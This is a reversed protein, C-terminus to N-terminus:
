LASASCGVAIKCTRGYGGFRMMKWVEQTQCTWAELSWSGSEGVTEPLLSYSYPGYEEVFKDVSFQDALFEDVDFRTSAYHQAFSFIFEVAAAVVFIVSIFLPVRTIKPVSQVQVCM